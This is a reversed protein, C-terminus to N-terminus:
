QRVGLAARVVSIKWCDVLWRVVDKNYFKEGHEWHSWYLSMGRLVVPAGNCDAVHGKRVGLCGHRDVISM